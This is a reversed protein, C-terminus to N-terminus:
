EIGNTKEWRFEEKPKGDPADMASGFLLLAPQMPKKPPDAPTTSPVPPMPKPRVAAMRRKVFESLRSRIRGMKM